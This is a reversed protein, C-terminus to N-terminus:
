ATAKEREQNRNVANFLRPYWSQFKAKLTHDLRRFRFDSLPKDVPQGCLYPGVHMISRISFQFLHIEEWGMAM